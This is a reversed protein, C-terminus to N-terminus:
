VRFNRSKRPEPRATRFSLLVMQMSFPYELSNQLWSRFFDNIMAPRNTEIQRTLWELYKRSHNRSDLRAITKDLVEFFPEEMIPKLVYDSVGLQIAKQVFAFDDYGTVIIIEADPLLAKAEHIFDLGNLFPMNIDVLMIDPETRNAEELAVEGYEAQAVVELQDHQSVMGALGRRIIDEDDAILVKYM